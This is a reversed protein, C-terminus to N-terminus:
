PPLTAFFFCFLVFSRQLMRSNVVSLMHKWVNKAVVGSTYFPREATPPMCSGTHNRYHGYHLVPGNTILLLHPIYVGVILSFFMGTSAFPLLTVRPTISERLILREPRHFYRIIPPLHPIRWQPLNSFCCPCLPPLCAFLAFPLLHSSFQLVSPFLLFLRTTQTLIVASSRETNLRVNFIFWIQISAAGFRTM